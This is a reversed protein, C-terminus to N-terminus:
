TTRLDEPQDLSTLAAFWGELDTVATFMADCGANTEAEIASRAALGTVTATGQATLWGKAILSEPTRSGPESKSASSLAVIEAAILGAEEWATIHADFRAYRLGTLVHHLRHALETPEPLSRFANVMTGSAHTLAETAGRQAVVLEDGWLSVATDSRAKLIVELVDRLAGSPRHQDDVLRSEQLRSIMVAVIDDPEYRFRLRAIKLTCAGAALFEALDYFHGPSEVGITEALPGFSSRHRSMVTRHMGIVLRDVERAIEATTPSPM